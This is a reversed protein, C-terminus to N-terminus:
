IKFKSVSVILTDSNKEAAKTLDIVKSSMGVIKLTEESINSIGSAGSNSASSIENSMKKMIKLSNLLKISSSSFDNIMGSILLANKSYESGAEKIYDYDKIFNKDLYNFFM